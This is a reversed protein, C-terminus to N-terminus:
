VKLNKVVKKAFWPLITSVHARMNFPLLSRRLLIMKQRFYVSSSLRRLPLDNSRLVRFIWQERPSSKIGFSLPLKITFWPMLGCLNEHLGKRSSSVIEVRVERACKWGVHLQLRAHEDYPSHLFSSRSPSLSHFPLIDRLYSKQTKVKLIIKSPFNFPMITPLNLSPKQISLKMLLTFLKCTFTVHAKIKM